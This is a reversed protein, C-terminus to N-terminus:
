EIGEPLPRDTIVVVSKSRWAARWELTASADWEAGDISGDNLGEAAFHELLFTAAMERTPAVILFAWYDWIVAFSRLATSM